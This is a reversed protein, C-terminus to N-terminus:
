LLVVDAKLLSRTYSAAFASTLMACNKTYIAHSIHVHKDVKLNTRKSVLHLIGNKTKPQPSGSRKQIATHLRQPVCACMFVHVCACMCVHVCACMCMYVYVSCFAGAIAGRRENGGLWVLEMYNWNLVSCSDRTYQTYM